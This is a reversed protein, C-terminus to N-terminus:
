YTLQSKILIGAWDRTKAKFDFIAALRPRTNRCWKSSASHPWRAFISYRPTANQDTTSIRCYFVARKSM